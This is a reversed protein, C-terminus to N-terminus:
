GLGYWGFISRQVSGGANPLAEFYGAIKNNSSGMLFGTFIQNTTPNSSNIRIFTLKQSVNDYVGEIQNPPQTGLQMIGKVINNSTVSNIRLTGTTSNVDINWISEVDIPSFDAQSKTSVAMAEMNANIVSLNILM